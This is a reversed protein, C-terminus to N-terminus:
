TDLYRSVIVSILAENPATRPQPKQNSPTGFGTRHAAMAKASFKTGYTPGRVPM